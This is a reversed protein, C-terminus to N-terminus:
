LVRVVLVSSGRFGIPPLMQTQEGGGGRGEGGWHEM